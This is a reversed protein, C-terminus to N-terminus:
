RRSPPKPEAEGRSVAGKKVARVSSLMQVCVPVFLEGRVKIGGRIRGGEPYDPGRLQTILSVLRHEQLVQELKSQMYDHMYAELSSKFLIRGAALLQQLWDSCDFM